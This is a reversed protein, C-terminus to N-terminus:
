QCFYDTTQIYDCTQFIWWGTCVRSRRPNCAKGTTCSLVDGQSKDGCWDAQKYGSVCDFNSQCVSNFSCTPPTPNKLYCRATPGKLGARVFTWALCNGNGSCAAACDSVNNVNLGGIDNGFLDCGYANFNLVFLLIAAPLLRTCANISRM